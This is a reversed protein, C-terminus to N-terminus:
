KEEKADKTLAEKYEKKNVWIQHRIASTLAERLQFELCGCNKLGLTGIDRLYEELEATEIDQLQKEIHNAIKESFRKRYSM